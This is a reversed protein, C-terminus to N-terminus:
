RRAPPPPPAADVPPRAPQDLREIQAQGRLQEVLANVSSEALERRLQPAAQEFTPKATEERREVKIVHFGFQTQVPQPTMQGPALAYAAEAFPAVMEERGFCGLDGGQARSGDTSRARAVTAFDAGRTIEAIAERAAAETPVLIHRACVRFSAPKDTVETRYRERLATDTVTSELRQGVFTQVLVEEEARAMRRKFGESDAVGSARAADAIVRQSILQDLLLPYLVQQPMGRYEEPLGQMAEAVDATTIPKGNVRAVVEGAPQARAPATLMPVTLLPLALLAARLSHRMTRPIRELSPGMM